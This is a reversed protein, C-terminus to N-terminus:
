GAPDPWTEEEARVPLADPGDLPLEPYPWGAPPPAGTAVFSRVAADCVAYGWNILLRQERADFRDLRTRLRSLAQSVRAPVPLRGPAAYRDIATEIGWYAGRREGTALERLLARRRQSLGQHGIISLARTAQRLWDRARPAGSAFPAGADSVLVTRCRKWVPELGLNDYAGGDILRVGDEALRHHLDAGPTRAFLVPDVRLLVPSLFPPYASSAAVALAVPFTPREILGIRYDGAYPKSFRFGVGSSLNTANFVFRPSDPLDQLTAPGLLRRRYTAAAWEGASRCPLLLGALVAPVDVTRGCLLRLPDVVERVVAQPAFGAARLAEWRVALRGLTIAGGSVGSLRALASLLGLESLRWLAGAHFLSARFGGGSLTLGVTEEVGEVGFAM